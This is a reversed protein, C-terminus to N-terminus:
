ARARVFTCVCVCVCVCVYVLVVLVVLLLLLLELLLELLLILLLLIHALHLVYAPGPLLMKFKTKVLNAFGVESSAMVITACVRAM